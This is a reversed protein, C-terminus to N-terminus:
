KTPKSPGVEGSSDDSTSLFRRVKETDAYLIRWERVLGGQIWATWIVTEQAEIERPIQSDTTQGILIVVDGLAVVKSLQIRYKPFESFYGSWGERMLKKGRETKGDVDVFAYDDSMLEILGDLDGKNILDVYALAVEKADKMKAEKLAGGSGVLTQTEGALTL